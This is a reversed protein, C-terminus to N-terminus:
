QPPYRDDVPGVPAAPAVPEPASEPRPRPVPIGPAARVANPSPRSRPVPVAAAIPSAPAVTEPESARVPPAPPPPAVPAPPPATIALTAVPRPPEEAPQSQAPRELPVAPKFSEIPSWREALGDTPRPTAAPSVAAAKVPRTESAALVAPKLVAVRPPEAISRVLWIMGWFSGLAMSVAFGGLLVKPLVSPARRRRIEDYAM